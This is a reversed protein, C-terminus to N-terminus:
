QYQTFMKYYVEGDFGALNLLRIVDNDAQEIDQTAKEIAQEYIDEATKGTIATLIEIGCFAKGCGTDRHYKMMGADFNLLHLEECVRATYANDKIKKTILTIIEKKKM